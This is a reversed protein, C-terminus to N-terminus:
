SYLGHVCGDGGAFHGPVCADGGAILFVTRTRLWGRRSDLLQPEMGCWLFYPSIGEFFHTSIILSNRLFHLFDELFNPWTAFFCYNQVRKRFFVFRNTKSLNDICSTTCSCSVIYLIYQINYCFNGNILYVIFRNHNIFFLTHTWRHAWLEYNM